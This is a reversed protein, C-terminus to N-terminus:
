GHAAFRMVPSAPLASGAICRVAGSRARVAAGLCQVLAAPWAPRWPGSHGHGGVQAETEEFAAGPVPLVRDFLQLMRQEGFKVFCPLLWEALGTLAAGAAARRGWPTDGGERETVARGLVFAVHVEYPSELKSRPLSCCVGTECRMPARLGFAAQERAHCCVVAHGWL